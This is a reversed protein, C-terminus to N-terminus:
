HLTFRVPITVWVAVPRGGCIAPKFAWRRVADMAAQNLLPISRARVQEVMGDAGVLARVQVVGSVKQERADDPYSPAVRKIIEPMGTVLIDDGDLASAVDTTPPSSPPTWDQVYPDEHMAARVLRTVAGLSDGFSWAEAGSSRLFALGERMHLTLIYSRSDVMFRVDVSLQDPCRRCGALCTSGPARASERLAVAVLQQLWDRSAKTSTEPREAPAGEDWKRREVRIDRARAALWSPNTLSDTPAAAFAVGAPVLTGFAVLGALARLIRTGSAM